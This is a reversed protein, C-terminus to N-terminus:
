LSGMVNISIGIVNSINNENGASQSVQAIGSFNNFSDVITEMRPDRPGSDSADAPGPVVDALSHDDLLAVEPSLRLGAALVLVNAQQNLNGSSQNVGVIGSTDNFSNVISDTHTVGSSVVENDYRSRVLDVSPLNVEAGGAALAIVRVNAQNNINGSDQNVSVIGSNRSFSDQILSSYDVDGEVVRNGELRQSVLAFAFSANSDGESVAAADDIGPILMILAVASPDLAETPAWAMQASAVGSPAALLLSTVLASFLKM